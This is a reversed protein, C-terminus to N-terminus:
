RSTISKLGKPNVCFPLTEIVTEEADTVDDTVELKDFGSGERMPKKRTECSSNNRKWRSCREHARSELNMEMRKVKWSSELEEKM